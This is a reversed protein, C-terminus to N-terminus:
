APGPLSEMKFVLVDYKIRDYVDENLVDAINIKYVVSEVDSSATAGRTDM